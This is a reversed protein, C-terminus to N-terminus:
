CEWTLPFRQLTWLSLVSGGARRLRSSVSGGLAGQLQSPMFFAQAFGLFIQAFWLLVVGIGVFSLGMLIALLTSGVYRNVTRSDSLLWARGGVAGGVFSMAYVDKFWDPFRLDPILWEVGKLLFATIPHVLDRYHKLAQELVPDLGVDLVKVILSIIALASVVSGFLTYFWVVGSLGQDREGRGNDAM